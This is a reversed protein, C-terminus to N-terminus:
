KKPIILTQGPYIKDPHSLMPKNAEFIKNYANADGYQSKAIASLTDGSKVTYYTSEAGGDTAKMNNVVEAIGSVNGVAVMMKEKAEQSLGDGSVEAKGNEDVKVDVKDAGPLNLKQLHSKLTQGLSEPSKDSVADLLKEGADKVFSFLSM